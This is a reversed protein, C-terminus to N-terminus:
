EGSRDMVLISRLLLYLMFGTTIYGYLFRRTCYYRSLALAVTTAMNKFVFFLILLKFFLATQM